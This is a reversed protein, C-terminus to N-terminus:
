ETGVFYFNRWVAHPYRDTWRFPSRAVDTTELNLPSCSLRDKSEAAIWGGHFRRRRAGRLSSCLVEENMRRSLTGGGQACGSRRCRGYAQWKEATPLPKRTRM